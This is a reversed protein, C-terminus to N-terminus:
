EGLLVALLESYTTDELTVGNLDKEYRNDEITTIIKVEKGKRERRLGLSVDVYDIDRKCGDIVLKGTSKDDIYEEKLWYTMALNLGALRPKLIVGAMRAYVEAYEYPMISRGLEESRAVRCIEYLATGTDIGLSVYKGGEVDALYDELFKDWIPKAYPKPKSTMLIPIPYEKVTIDEGAFKKLVPELGIDFSYIVLPKPFTCLLHSKGSKAPANISIVLNPKTEM